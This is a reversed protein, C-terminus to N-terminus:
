DQKSEKGESSTLAFLGLLPLKKKLEQITPGFNMKFIEAVLEVQHHYYEGFHEDYFDTNLVGNQIMVPFQLGYSIIEQLLRAGKKPEVRNLIGSIIKTYDLKTDLGDKIDGVGDTAGSIINKCELVIESRRTALIEILTYTHGDITYQKTKRM